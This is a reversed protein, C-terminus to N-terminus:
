THAQTHAHTNTHTHMHTTHHTHAQTYTHIHTYAQTHPTTHTHTHTHHPTHTRTHTHTLYNYTRIYWSAIYLHTQTTHHVEIDICFAYLQVQLQKAVSQDPGLGGLVQLLLAFFQYLSNGGLVVGAVRVVTENVNWVDSSSFCEAAKPM